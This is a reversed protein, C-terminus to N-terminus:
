ENWADLSHRHDRRGPRCARPGLRPIVRGGCAGAADPPRREDGDNAQPVQAIEVLGVGTGLDIFGPSATLGTGDVVQAGPPAAVTAGVQVFRDGRVVLSGGEIPPGSVPLIRVNRVIVVDAAPQAGLTPAWIATAAVLALRAGRTM